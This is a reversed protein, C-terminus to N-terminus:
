FSVRGAGAVVVALDPLEIPAFLPFLKPGHTKLPGSTYQTDTALVIGDSCKFGVGITVAREPKPLPSPYRLLPYPSDEFFDVSPHLNRKVSCSRDLMITSMFLRGKSFFTATTPARTSPFEIRAVLRM